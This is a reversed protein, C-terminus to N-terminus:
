QDELDDDLADTLLWTDQFIELIREKRDEYLRQVLSQCLVRRQKLNQENVSDADTPPVMTWRRRLLSPKDPQSLKMASDLSLKRRLPESKNLDDNKNHLRLHTKLLEETLRTPSKDNNSDPLIKGETRNFSSLAGLERSLDSTVAVM